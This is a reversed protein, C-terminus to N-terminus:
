RLIGTPTCLRKDLSDTDDEIITRFMEDARERDWNVDLDAIPVGCTLGNEGDVRTMASAWMGARVPNTGEGFSVARTAAMNLRWYRVPNLISWPSVVKRGIAAVVERQQKAREIDGLDSTHRSRAYGLATAGDADQCGKKVSLNALKDEMDQKPCIEIGGVADVIDVFGGFGIEVYDDVRIGTNQEITRVLLQPGGIAFASNIKTVGQGPVDVLSDRPLSMLLNPGRGTHLLMITDTRQGEASGTGLEEREAESLDQRSDSGVLLYTHGPQQGPRDGDPEFDTKEVRTWAFAPVAVLFVIWLLVLRFLWKARFRPRRRGQTPPRSTALPRRGPPPPPSTPRPTSRSAPRPAERPQAPMIRTEDPGPERSGPTGTGDGPGGQQGYLWGFQPEGDEPRGNRPRDAM